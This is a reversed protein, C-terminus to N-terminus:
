ACTRSRPVGTLLFPQIRYDQQVTAYILVVCLVPCGPISSGTDVFARRTSVSWRGQIHSVLLQVLFFDHSKSHCVIERTRPLTNWKNSNGPLYSYFVGLFLVFNYNRQTRTDNKAKWRKEIKMECYNSGTLDASNKIEHKGPNLGVFKRWCPHM